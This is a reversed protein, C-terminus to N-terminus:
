WPSPIRWSGIKSPVSRIRVGGWYPRNGLRERARRDQARLGRRGEGGAAGVQERHGLLLAARGAVAAAGVVGGARDAGVLQVGHVEAGSRVLDEGRERTMGVHGALEHPGTEVVEALRGRVVAGAA